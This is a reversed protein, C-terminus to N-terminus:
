FFFFSAKLALSSQQQKQFQTKTTESGNGDQTQKEDKEVTVLQPLTQSVLAEGAPLAGVGCSLSRSFLVWRGVWVAVWLFLCWVRAGRQWASLCVSLGGGGPPAM